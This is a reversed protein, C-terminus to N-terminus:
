LLIGATNSFDDDDDDFNYEKIIQDHKAITEKILDRIEKEAECSKRTESLYIECLEEFTIFAIEFYPSYENSEASFQYSESSNGYKGTGECNQLNLYQLGGTVEDVYLSDHTNTGVVHEPQSKLVGINKVKILPFLM